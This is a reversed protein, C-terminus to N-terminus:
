YLVVASQVYAQGNTPATASGSRWSTAPTATSSTGRWDVLTVNTWGYTNGAFQSTSGGASVWRGDFAVIGGLVHTFNVAEAMGYTGSAVLDGTGHVNAFTATVSCSDYVNPTACSVATPTVTEVNAGIGIRIPATTSLPMFSRGDTTRIFGYSLVVTGTGTVTNSIDVRLPAVSPNVGYAFDFANAVGVFVSPNQAFIPFAIAVLLPLWFYKKVLSM